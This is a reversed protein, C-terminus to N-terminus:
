GFGILLALRFPRKTECVCEEVRKKDEPKSWVLQRAEM